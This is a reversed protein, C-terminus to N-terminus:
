FSKENKLYKCKRGSKKTIYFLPKIFFSHKIEFNTVDCVPCCIIVICMNCLTELLLPLCVIFHLRNISYFMLLIKRSFDYVFHPPSVSREIFFKFQAYRQIM